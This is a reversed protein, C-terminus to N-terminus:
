FPLPRAAAILAMMERRDWYWNWLASRSGAITKGPMEMQYWSPNFVNQTVKGGVRAYTDQLEKLTPAFADQSAIRGYKLLPDEPAIANAQDEIHANFESQAITQTDPKRGSGREKKPVIPTTVELTQSLM